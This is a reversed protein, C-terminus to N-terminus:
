AGMQHNLGKPDLEESVVAALPLLQKLAAAAASLQDM